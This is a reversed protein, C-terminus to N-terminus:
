EPWAESRHAVSGVLGGEAAGPWPGGQARSARRVGSSCRHRSTFSSLHLEGVEDLLDAILPGEHADAKDTAVLAPRHLVEVHEDALLKRAVPNLDPPM